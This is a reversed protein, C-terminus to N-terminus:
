NHQRNEHQYTLKAHSAPRNTLCVLVYSKVSTPPPLESQRLPKWNNLVPQQWIKQLICFAFCALYHNLRDQSSLIFRTPIQRVKQLKLCSISINGHLWCHKAAASCHLGAPRYASGRSFFNLRSIWETKM